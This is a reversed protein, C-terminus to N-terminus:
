KAEKPPIYDIIEIADVYPTRYKGSTHDWLTEEYKDWGAVHPLKKGDHRLQETFRNIDHQSRQLVSRMEKYKSSPLNSIIGYAAQLLKEIHSHHNGDGCVLYPGFHMDGLAGKYEQERIQELTPAQEGHLIAFDLWSTGPMKRSSAKAADCLQEALEYARFFPYSASVIAIGACSDISMGGTKEDMLAEMFKKAFVIALKANCVFTIDDGGIIMPRIPLEQQKLDLYDDYAGSARKAVIEKLLERFAAKTKESVQKSLVGRAELKKCQQFRNGMNNGDIHVVAIDNEKERQGLRGLEKPFTYDALDDGFETRLDVDAKVAAEAKAVVEQSFFRSEGVKVLPGKTVFANAAEGNVECTLTMGTNEVNVQPFISFQNDKLTGYLQNMSERYADPTEKTDLQLMGLAAGTKLGPFRVLLKETFDAVIEKRRDEGRDPFLLLANGGGIYAVYCDAPLEGDLEKGEKWSETDITKIGFADSKLVDGLLVEEFVHSVIYSAGINTKLRNDAFIYRQISRTDFLIARVQM